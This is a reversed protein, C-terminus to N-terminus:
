KKEPEIYRDFVQGSAPIEIAMHFALVDLRGALAPFDVNGKKDVCNARIEKMAQHYKEIATM